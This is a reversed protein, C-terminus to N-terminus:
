VKHNKHRYIKEYIKLKQAPSKFVYIVTILGEKMDSEKSELTQTLKSQNCNFKRRM